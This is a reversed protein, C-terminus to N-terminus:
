MPFGPPVGPMGPMTPPMMPPMGVPPMGVPPMPAGSMLQEYAQEYIERQKIEILQKLTAIQAVQEGHLSGAQMRELLEQHQQLRMLEQQQVMFAEPNMGGQLRQLEQAFAHHFVENFRQQEEHSQVAAAWHQQQQHALFAQAIPDSAGPGFGGGPHM